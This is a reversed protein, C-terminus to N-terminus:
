DCRRKGIQKHRGSHRRGNRSRSLRAVLAAVALCVVSVKWRLATARPADGVPPIRIYSPNGSWYLGHLHDFVEAEVWSGDERWCSPCSESAPWRAVQSERGNPKEENNQELREGLLRVNVSSAIICVYAYYM